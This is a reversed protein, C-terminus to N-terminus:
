KLRKVQVAKDVGEVIMKYVSGSKYILVEPRYRYRYRYYYKTQQWIQGNSLKVITEGDWGNFTGDVKSEIVPPTKPFTLSTGGSLLKDVSTLIRLPIFTTIIPEVLMVPEVDKKTWRKGVASGSYPVFGGIGPKVLLVPKVQDKSWKNGISSGFMPKFSGIGPEVIVVPTVDSKKWSVGLGAGIALCCISMLLPITFATTRVKKCFNKM